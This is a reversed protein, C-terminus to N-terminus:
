PKLNKLQIKFASGKGEESSVSILGHLKQVIENAIYLGIGSGEITASSRFFMDFVKHQQDEPIGIGNDEVTISLQQDNAFGTIKVFSKETDDSRFKIANSIVNEVVTCFALKDTYFQTEEEINLEFKVNLANKKVIFTSIIDSISKNLNIKEIELETRNNRSYSLINKIYSDLRNVRSRIMQAHELTQPEQTEDEIFSLLGLMSTLPSRLDHSVSYAFRDLEFNAKMLERNKNELNQESKFRETINRSHCAVGVIEDGKRIPNFSTESWYGSPLTIRGTETFSEGKLARQYFDKYMKRTAPTLEKRLINEGKSLIKGYLSLVLDDFSKNSTILKLNKDISWMVDRTNNILADLNHRDFQRQQEALKKETVDSFNSVLANVAPDDLLNTGTGECWLWDGNKHKVRMEFSFSRGPVKIAKTRKKIFGPLDDPHIIQFLYSGLMEDPNYGLITVISPSGYMIKGDRDALTKMDVSKEILARFRKENKLALEETLQHMRAKEFNDIAFSIDTAVETLLNIEEPGTFNMQDSYLNFTGIIRGFKKLPLVICSSIGHKIAFPKWGVHELDNEIDNSVYYTGKQLVHDQPGDPNYRVNKLSLVEEEDLGSEGILTINKFRHDFIGIWAIKFKGFETAISCSNQFLTKEDKVHVICQNIQSLFAYLTKGKNIKELAQKYATIDLSLICIGEDDPEVTLEFWRVSKDPFVFENEFRQSERDIMCKELTKFLSTNEIGPYKQMMTYGLLEEKQSRSQEEMVDNLYVYRWDFDIVQIGELLSDLRKRLNKTHNPNYDHNEM